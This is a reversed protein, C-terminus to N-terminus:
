AKPFPMKDKRVSTGARKRGKPKPSALYSWIGSAGMFLAGICGSFLLLQGPFGGVMGNHLALMWYYLRYGFPAADYPRVKLITGDSPDAYLLTRAQAHPANGDIAYIELAEGPKHAVHLMVESPHHTHAIINKWIDDVVAGEESIWEPKDAFEPAQRHNNNRSPAVNLKVHDEGVMARQLPEFAIPIGTVASVLLPAAAWAGITRHLGLIYAKGRARSDIRLAQRFGRPGRPWWLYLGLGALLSVMALAGIGMIAGGAKGIWVGKHMWEFTGFIGSYRGQETLKRGTCSDFYITDQDFFRVMVQPGDTLRVRLSDVESVPHLQRASQELRSLKIRPLCAAETGMGPYILGELEARFVLGTGTLASILLIVGLTLGSWRHVPIWTRRTLKVTLREWSFLVNLTENACARWRLSVLELTRMQVFWDALHRIALVPM